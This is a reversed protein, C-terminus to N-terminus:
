TTEFLQLAFCQRLSRLPPHPTAEPKDTLHYGIRTASSLIKVKNPVMETEWYTM